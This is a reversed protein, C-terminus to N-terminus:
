MQSLHRKGIGCGQWKSGLALLIEMICDMAMGAVQKGVALAASFDRCMGGSLYLPKNEAM